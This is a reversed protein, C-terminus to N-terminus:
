AIVAIARVVTVSVDTAENNIINLTIKGADQLVGVTLDIRDGTDAFLTFRPNRSAHCAASVEFFRVANAAVATVYWKVAAHTTFNIEDAPSGIGGPQVTTDVSVGPQNVDSSPLPPTQTTLIIAM